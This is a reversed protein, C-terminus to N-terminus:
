DSTVPRSPAHADGAAAPRQARPAAQSANAAPEQKADEQATEVLRYGRGAITEIRVGGASLKSRMRSLHVQLFNTGPEGELNWVRRLFEDKPVFRGPEEILLALLEFERPTLDVSRNGNRVRRLLPDITLDGVHILSRAPARRMVAQLRSLLEEFAFPKVIYDDAGLDLARVKTKVDELITVLIVPIDRGRERLFKLLEWGKMGPLEMDLLIVDFPQERAEEMARLAEKSSGVAVHTIKAEGLMMTCLRRFAPDDDVVLVRIPLGEFPAPESQSM